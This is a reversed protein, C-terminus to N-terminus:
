KWKKEQKNKMEMPSPDKKVFNDVFNLISENLNKIMPDKTVASLDALMKEGESVKSTSLTYCFALFTKATEHSPDKHLVEKFHESAQKLELKMMHLYGLGVKPLLNEKNITQAARFMKVASDEDAQNVAIFGSECFLLFHDQFNKLSQKTAM